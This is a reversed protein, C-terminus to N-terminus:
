TLSLRNYYEKNMLKVKKTFQIPQLAKFKLENEAAKRRISNQQSYFQFMQSLGQVGRLMLREIIKFKLHYELFSELFGSPTEEFDFEGDEDLPFGSYKIFLEGENIDSILKNKRVSVTNNTEPYFNSCGVSCHNKITDKTLSLLYSKRYSCTVMGKDKFVYEKKVVKLEEEHCCDDCENWTSKLEHVLNYYETGMITHYEKNVTNSFSIPECIRVEKIKYFNSPLEAQGNKLKIVDEYDVTANNGFSRLALVIDRYIADEDLVGFNDYKSLDTRVVSIISSINSM